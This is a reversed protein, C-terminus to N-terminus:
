RCRRRATKALGLGWLSAHGDTGVIIHDIDVIQPTM